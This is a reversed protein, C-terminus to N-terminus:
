VIKSELVDIRYNQPKIALALAAKKGAKTSRDYTNLTRICEELALNLKLAEEFSLCINLSKALRKDPSFWAVNCGGFSAKKKRPM